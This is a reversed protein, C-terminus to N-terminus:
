KTGAVFWYGNRKGVACELTFTSKSQGGKSTRSTKLVIWHTPPFCWELKRGEFTGPLSTKSTYESLEYVSCSELTSEGLGFRASCLFSDRAEKLKAPTKGEYTLEILRNGDGTEYASRIANQLEPLSKCGDKTQQTCSVSLILCVILGVHKM